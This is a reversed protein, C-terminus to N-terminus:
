PAAFQMMNTSNVGEIRERSTARSHQLPQSLCQLESDTDWFLAFACVGECLSSFVLGWVKSFLISYSSSLDQM